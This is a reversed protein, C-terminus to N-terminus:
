RLVLVRAIRNVITVAPKYRCTEEVLRKGIYVYMTIPTCECWPVTIEHVTNCEAWVCNSLPGCPLASGQGQPM